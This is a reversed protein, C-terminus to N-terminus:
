RSRGGWTGGGASGGSWESRGEREQVKQFEPPNREHQKPNQQRAVESNEVGRSEVPRSFDIKPDSM